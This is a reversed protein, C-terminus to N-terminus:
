FIAFIYTPSKCFSTFTHIIYKFKMSMICLPRRFNRGMKKKLYFM